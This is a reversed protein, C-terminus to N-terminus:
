RRPAYAVFTEALLALVALALLWPALHAGEPAGSPLLAVAAPLNAGAIVAKAGADLRHAAVPDAAATCGRAMRDLALPYGPNLPLTGGELDTAAFVLCGAGERRAAVAPRGDEWAALLQADLSAGGGTRVVAGALVPGEPFTLASSPDAAGAAAPSRIWPLAAQLPEPAPAAVVVTAGNRALDLLTAAAAPSLSDLVVYVADATDPPAVTNPAVGWGAAALAARVFRGRGEGGIVRVRGRETTAPTDATGSRADALPVLRIAGPWAADRLPAVGGRWGDWQLSSLLTVRASDAAGIRTAAEPIARLAATYTAAGAAPPSRRLSDFLAAEIRAPPVLVAATDFLVLAGRAEGEPTLLLRRASDVAAPWATPSTGRDLLVIEAIGPVSRVWVAGALAAGLALLWLARLALLLLDTPRPRFRPAETRSPQLFRATPLAARVPPRRALLHLM